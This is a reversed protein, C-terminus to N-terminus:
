RIGLVHCCGIMAEYTLGRLSCQMVFIQETGDGEGRQPM